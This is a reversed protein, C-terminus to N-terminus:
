GNHIGGYTTVPRFGHLADGIWKTPGHWSLCATGEAADRGKRRIIEIQEASGPHKCRTTWDEGWELRNKAELYLCWVEEADQALKSAWQADWMGPRPQKAAADLNEPKKAQAFVVVPIALEAALDKLTQSCRMIHELTDSRDGKARPLDQVYDVLLADLRGANHLQRARACVEDVVLGCGSVEVTYARLRMAADHLQQGAQLADFGNRKPVRAMASLLDGRRRETTTETGHLYVYRGQECLGITLRNCLSTKGHGSQALVLTVGQSSLGGLVRDLDDLGTQITWGGGSSLMSDLVRDVEAAHSVPAAAREALTLAERAVRGAIEAVSGLEAETAETGGEHLRRSVDATAKRLRLTRCLRDLYLRTPAPTSLLDHMYSLGGCREVHDPFDVLHQIVAVGDCALGKTRLREVTKWILRHREDALDDATFALGDLDDPFTLCAAMVQRELTRATEYLGPIENHEQGDEIM